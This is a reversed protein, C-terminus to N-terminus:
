VEGPDPLPRYREILFFIHAIRIGAVSIYAKGILLDDSGPEVRVVYDRLLRSPDYAPNGGRGYDLLAAAHQEADAATPDPPEVGFFAYRKAHQPDPRAIWEADLGNQVVPTNCGFPRGSRLYFVKIFKRIGLLATAKPQNFGRYEFGILAPVEPATGAAFVAALEAKSRSALELYAASVSAM